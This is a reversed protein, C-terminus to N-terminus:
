HALEDSILADCCEQLPGHTLSARCVGVQEATRLANPLFPERDLKGAQEIAKIGFFVGIVPAGHAPPNLLSFVRVDPDFGRFPSHDADLSDATKLVEELVRGYLGCISHYNDVVCM